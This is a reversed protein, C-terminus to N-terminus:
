AENIFDKRSNEVRERAPASYNIGSDNLRECDSSPFFEKVCFKATMRITGILVPAKVMYTIGFGGAGLTKVITYTRANGHLQFGKPLENVINPM